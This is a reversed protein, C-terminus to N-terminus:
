VQPGRRPVVLHDIGSATLWREAVAETVMVEGDEAKRQQRGKLMRTFTVEEAVYLNRNRQKPV